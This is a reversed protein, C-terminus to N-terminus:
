LPLAVSPAIVEPVPLTAGAALRGQLDAIRSRSRGLRESGGVGASPQRFSACLLGTSGREYGAATVGEETAFTIKLM